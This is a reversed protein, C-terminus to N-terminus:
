ERLYSSVLYVEQYREKVKQAARAAAPGPEFLGIVSPGSGSMVSHLAGKRILCNKIEAIEPFRAVSVTELVNIMNVAMSKLDSREWAAVFARNDPREIISNLDLGAYVRATSLQFPPKILVMNIRPGGPLPTLKEGRGRALATGGQLCFPVDSGLTAGIELLEFRDLGLGLLDNVGELVAAADTSGGALGAGVPINKEIFIRVGTRLGCKELLARAARYALNSEDDPVSSSNSQVTIRSAETIHVRDLLDIQHMCTELEHYGDARKGKVDLTLNVKAPAEMVINRLM